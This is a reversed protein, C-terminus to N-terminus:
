HGCSCAYEPRKCKGCPRTDAVIRFNQSPEGPKVKLQFVVAYDNGEPLASQSVLTGDKKEFEIKRRMQPPQLIMTATQEGAPVMKLSDDYFTVVVKRDKDIFFEARPSPNELLKGGKPGPVIKDEANALLLGTGLVCALAFIKLFTKM